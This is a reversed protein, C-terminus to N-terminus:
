RQNMNCGRYQQWEVCITKWTMRNGHNEDIKIKWKWKRITSNEKNQNKFKNWIQQSHTSIAYTCCVPVSFWSINVCFKAYYPFHLCIQNENESFKTLFCCCCLFFTVHATHCKVLAWLQFLIKCLNFRYM